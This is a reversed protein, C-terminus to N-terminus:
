AERIEALRFHVMDHYRYFDVRGSSRGCQIFQSSNYHSINIIKEKLESTTILVRLDSNRKKNRLAKFVNKKDHVMKSFSM